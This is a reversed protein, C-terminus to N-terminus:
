LDDEQIQKVAMISSFLELCIRGFPAAFHHYGYFVDGFAVFGLSASGFNSNFFSRHSYVRGGLIM